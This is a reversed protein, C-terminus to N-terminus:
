FQTPPRLPMLVARRIVAKKFEKDEIYQEADDPNIWAIRDVHGAIDEKFAGRPIVNCKYQLRYYDDGDSSIVKQHAIPVCDIMECNTEELIERKLTEETSEGPERTGGPISWIDYQAHHVLLMKGNWFCVAHAKLALDDPVADFNDVDTHHVDCQRGNHTITNKFIQM